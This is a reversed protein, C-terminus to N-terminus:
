TWRSSDAPLNLGWAGKQPESWGLSFGRDNCHSRLEGVSGRESGGVRM